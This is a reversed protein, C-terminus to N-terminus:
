VTHLVDMRFVEGRGKDKAALITSKLDALGRQAALPRKRYEHGERYKKNKHQRM